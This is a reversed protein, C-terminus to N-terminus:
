LPLDNADIVIGYSYLEGDEMIRFRAHPVNTKIVWCGNEGGNLWEIEIKEMRSVKDSYGCYLCECQDHEQADIVDIMSIYFIGPAGFEEVHWGRIEVLDDSSGHIIILKNHKAENLTKQDFRAPYEIGDIQKALEEKAM